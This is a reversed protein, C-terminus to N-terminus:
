RVRLYYVFRTAKCDRYVDPFVLIYTIKCSTLCVACSTVMMGPPSKGWRRVRARWLKLPPSAERIIVLPKKRRQGQARVSVEKEPTRYGRSDPSEEGTLGPRCILRSCINRNHWSFYFRLRQKIMEFYLIMKMIGMSDMHIRTTIRLFDVFTYWPQGMVMNKSLLM